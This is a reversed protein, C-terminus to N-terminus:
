ISNCIYNSNQILTKLRIRLDIANTTRTRIFDQYSTDLDRGIEDSNKRSTGFNLNELGLNCVRVIM